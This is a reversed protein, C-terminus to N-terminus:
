FPWYDRTQCTKIDELKVLEKPYPYFFSQETVDKKGASMLWTILISLPVDLSNKGNNYGELTELFFEKEDESIDDSLDDFVNKMTKIKSECPPPKKFLGYLLKKYEDYVESISGDDAHDKILDDMDDFIGEDYSKMLLGHRRHFDELSQLDGKDEVERFDALTFIKTLYHERIQYNRLRGDSEIAKQPFKKLVARGFFGADRDVPASDEMKPYIRTEKIGCSPSNGKLIFGDIEQELDLFGDVFQKMEGTYDEGTAPQVLRREGDKQVIRIPDRPVGLGIEVEPCVTIFEVHEKLDDVIDSSIIQDNYRCHEFGLCKSVVIRPKSFKRM